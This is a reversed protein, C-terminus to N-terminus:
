LHFCDWINWMYLIIPLSTFECDRLSEKRKQPVDEQPRIKVWYELAMEALSSFSSIHNSLYLLDQIALPFRFTLSHILNIHQEQKFASNIQKASSTPFYPCGLFRLYVIKAISHFEGFIISWSFFYQSSYLLLGSLISLSHVSVNVIEEALIPRTVTEVSSFDWVLWLYLYSSLTLCFSM